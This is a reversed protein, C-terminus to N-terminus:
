LSCVQRLQLPLYCLINSHIDGHCADEEQGIKVFILIHQSFTISFGLRSIGCFNTWHSDECNCSRDTISAGFKKVEAV